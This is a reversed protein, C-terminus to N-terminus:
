ITLLFQAGFYECPGTLWWLTRDNSLSLCFSQHQNSVRCRFYFCGYHVKTTTMTKCTHTHTHGWWFCMLYTSKTNTIISYCQFVCIIFSICIFDHFIVIMVYWFKTVILSVTKTSTTNLNANEFMVSLIPVSLREPLLTASYM